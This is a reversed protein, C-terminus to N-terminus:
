EPNDVRWLELTPMRYKVHFVIAGASPSSDGNAWAAFGSSKINRFRLHRTAPRVPMYESGFDWSRRTYRPLPEIAAGERQKVHFMAFGRQFPTFTLPVSPGIRPRRRLLESAQSFSECRHDRRRHGRRRLNTSVSHSVLATRWYGSLTEIRM